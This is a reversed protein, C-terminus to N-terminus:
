YVSLYGWNYLKSPHYQSLECWSKDLMQLLKVNRSMEDHYSLKGYLNVNICDTEVETLLKPEAAKMYDMTPGSRTVNLSQVLFAGDDIYMVKDGVKAEFPVLTPVGSISSLRHVQHRAKHYSIKNICECIAHVIMFPEYHLGAAARLASSRPWSSNVPLKWSDVNSQDNQEVFSDWLLWLEHVQSEVATELFYLTKPPEMNDLISELLRAHDRLSPPIDCSSILSESIDEIIGHEHALHITVDNPHHNPTLSLPQVLWKTQVGWDPVWSPLAEGLASLNCYPFLGKLDCSGQLLYRAARVYIDKTSINYDVPVVKEVLQRDNALGIVSYFFDRPDTAKSHARSVLLDYFSLGNRNGRAKDMALALTCHGQQDSYSQILPM